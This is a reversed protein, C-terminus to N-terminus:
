TIKSIITGDNVSAIAAVKNEFHSNSRGHASEKALPNQREATEGHRKIGVITLNICKFLPILFPIGEIINAALLKSSINTMLKNATKTEIDNPCIL